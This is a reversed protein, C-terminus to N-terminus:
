EHKLFKPMPIGFRRSKNSTDVTEEEKKEPEKQLNVVQGEVAIKVMTGYEVANLPAEQLIVGISTKERVDTIEIEGTEITEVDLVEGTKPHKIVKGEKFAIFKMGSKAGLRKGLDLTVKNGSRQVIYGELPFAQVIKDTIQEVLENLKASSSAQVKEATVISGTDVNILRANIEQNRGLKLITGSVITKVGLVKGLQAASEPDILGTMGLKQEQLVKELLRREIVDFRGTEVLGTILWEAVIKGMDETSFEEGQTQFDLVAIKTKKFGTSAPAASASAAALMLPMLFLIIVFFKVQKAIM